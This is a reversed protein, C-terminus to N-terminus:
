GAKCKAMAERAMREIEPMVSLEFESAAVVDAGLLVDLELSAPWRAKLQKVLEAEGRTPEEASWELPAGGAKARVKVRSLAPAPGRENDSIRSVTTLIGSVVLGTPKVDFDLLLGPRSFHPTETGVGERPEVVWSILKSDGDIAAIVEGPKGTVSAECADQAAAPHAALLALCLLAALRM